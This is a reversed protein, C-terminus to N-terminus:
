GGLCRLWHSVPTLVELLRHVENPMKTRETVRNTVIEPSIDVEIAHIATISTTSKPPTERTEDRTKQNKWTSSRAMDLLCHVLRRDFGFRGAFSCGDVLWGPVLWPDSCFRRDRRPEVCRQIKLKLLLLFLFLSIEAFQCWCPFSRSEALPIEASTLHTGLVVWGGKAQDASTIDSEEEEEHYEYLRLPSGLLPFSTLQINQQSNLM